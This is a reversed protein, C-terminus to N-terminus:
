QYILDWKIVNNEMWSRLCMRYRISTDGLRNRTKTVPTSSAPMLLFDKAMNALNQFVNEHKKWWELIDELSDTRPESLFKEIEYRWAM